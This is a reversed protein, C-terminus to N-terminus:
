GPCAKRNLQDRAAQVVDRLAAEIAAADRERVKTLGPPEWPRSIRLAEVLLLRQALFSDLGGVGRAEAIEVLAHRLASHLAEQVKQASARGERARVEEAAGGEM